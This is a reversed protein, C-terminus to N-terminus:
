SARGLAAAAAVLVGLRRLGGARVGPDPHAMNYTGSVAAISLVREAAATAVRAALEASIADPMSPGGTLAMKFPVVPLGSAAVAALTEELTPRPFTKAFIGLRM